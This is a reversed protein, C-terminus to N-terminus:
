ESCMEPFSDLCRYKQLADRYTSSNQQHLSIMKGPHNIKRTVPMETSRGAITKRKIFRRLRHEGQPPPTPSPNNTRSFNSSAFTVEQSKNRSVSHSLLAEKAASNTKDNQCANGFNICVFSRFFTIFSPLQEHLKGKQITLVYVDYIDLKNSLHSKERM